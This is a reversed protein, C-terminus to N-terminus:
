VSCRNFNNIAKKLKLACNACCQGQLISLEQDRLSFLGVARIYVYMHDLAVYLYSKTRAIPEM